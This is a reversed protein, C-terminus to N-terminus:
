DKKTMKVPKLTMYNSRDFEMLYHQNNQDKVLNDFKRHRVKSLISNKKEQKKYESLVQLTMYRAISEMQSRQDSNNNQAYQM